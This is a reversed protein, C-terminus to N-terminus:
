LRERIPPIGNRLLHGLRTPVTISARVLDGRNHHGLKVRGAQHPLQMGEPNAVHSFIAVLIGGGFRLLNSVKIQGPMKDALQLGVLSAGNGGVAVNNV